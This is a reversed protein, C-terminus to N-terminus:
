CEAPPPAMSAPGTGGGSARPMSDVTIILDLELMARAAAVDGIHTLFTARRRFSSPSSRPRPARSCASFHLVGGREWPDRTSGSRALPEKDWDSCAWVLGRPAPFGSTRAACTDASIREVPLYPVKAPLTKLTSRFYYPLEMCEIETDHPPDPDTTWANIVRDAGDMGEFLDLLM